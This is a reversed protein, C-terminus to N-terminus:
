FAPNGDDSSVQPDALTRIMAVLMIAVDDVGIHHEHETEPFVGRRHAWDELKLTDRGEYWDLHQAVGRYTDIIKVKGSKVAEAYGKVSMEMFSNEYTANHAVFPVSTLTDLLEKQAAPDLDLIAHGETSELDVGNKLSEGTLLANQADFYKPLGIKRYTDTVGYRRIHVSELAEHESDNPDCTMWGADIVWARDASSGATEIDIGVVKNVMPRETLIRDYFAERAEAYEPDKKKLGNTVALGERVLTDFEAEDRGQWVIAQNVIKELGADTTLDTKSYKPQGRKIGSPESNPKADPDDYYAGHSILYLREDELNKNWWVLLRLPAFSSIKDNPVTYFLDKLVKLNKSVRKREETTIALIEDKSSIADPWRDNDEMQYSTQHPTTLDNLTLLTTPDTQTATTKTLGGMKFLQEPKLSKLFPEWEEKFAKIGENWTEPLPKLPEPISSYAETEETAQSDWSRKDLKPQKLDLNSDVSDYDFVNKKTASVM